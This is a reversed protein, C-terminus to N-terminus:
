QFSSGPLAPTAARGASGCVPVPELQPYEYGNPVDGSALLRVVDVGPVEPFPPAPIGHRKSYLAQAGIQLREIAALKAIMADRLAFRANLYCENAHGEARDARRARHGARKHKRGSRAVQDLTPETSRYTVWASTGWICIAAGTLLTATVPSFTFLARALGLAVELSIGLKAAHYRGFRHPGKVEFEPFDADDWVKRATGYWLATAESALAAAVAIFNTLVLSAGLGLLLTKDLIYLGIVAGGAVIWKVVHAVERSRKKGNLLRRNAEAQWDDFEAKARCVECMVDIRRNRAEILLRRRRAIRALLRREARSFKTLGAIYVLADGYEGPAPGAPPPTTITM